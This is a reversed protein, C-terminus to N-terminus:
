RCPTARRPQVLPWDPFPTTGAIYDSPIITPTMSDALDEGAVAWDVITGASPVRGSPHGLQAELAATVDTRPNAGNTDVLIHVAVLYTSVAETM